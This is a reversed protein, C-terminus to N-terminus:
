KKVIEWHGGFDAGVRRIVGLEKMKSLERKITPVSVGISKAISTSTLALNDADSETDASLILSYILKQRDTLKDTDRDTDDKINLSGLRLCLEVRDPQFYEKIEPAPWGNFNWGQKITDAGSGAREGNGIFMFMKQLSKNRCVSNGGSMYDEISVLMTGPNRFLLRDAYREIVINGLGTHVAHVLCNVIAERLAKHAPTDDVRSVGEMQFPVPLAQQM